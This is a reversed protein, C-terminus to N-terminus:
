FIQIQKKSVKNNNNWNSDLINIEAVIHYKGAPVALSITEASKIKKSEKKGVVPVSASGIFRDMGRKNDVSFYFSITCAPSDAKGKNKIRATLTIEEGGNLKRPSGKVLKVLLDFYCRSEEPVGYHWTDSFGSKLGALPDDSTSGGFLVVFEKKAHYAMSHGWRRPPSSNQRSPYSVSSTKMWGNGVLEWTDNFSSGGYWGGFLVTRNRDSDYAMAHWSRLGPGTNNLLVWNKGDWQWTSPSMAGSAHIGGHIIVAKRSANYVMAQGYRPEPGGPFKYPGYSKWVTGNWEWVYPSVTGDKLLGGFVVVVRRGADYAISHGMCAPPISGATTKQKWIKGDWTWLDNLYNDSKDKGGFLVVVKRKRDYAMAHGYRAEPGTKAMTEWKSGDWELTDGYISNEKRGGFLIVVKRDSDYAVAHNVRADGGAGTDVRQWSVQAPAQSGSIILLYPIALTLGVLIRKRFFLM